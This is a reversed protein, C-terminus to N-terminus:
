SEGAEGDYVAFDIETSGYKKRQLFEFGEPWPPDVGAAHEWTCVAAQLLVGTRSLDALLGAVKTPDLTYPPDLLILSFPGGPVGRSALSFADVRYVAARNSVGLAAINDELAILAHRDKEAFVARVAGRSLAELGLAGSGAFPDFVAGGGLGPGTISVIASFLSERVRDTTPRTKLGKATKLTRGRMAGAIIRVRQEGV